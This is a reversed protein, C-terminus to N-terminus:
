AGTSAPASHSNSRAPSSVKEISPSGIMPRHALDGAEVGPQRKVRAAEGVVRGGPLQQGLDAASPWALMSTLAKEGSRKSGSSVVAYRAYRDRLALGHPPPVSTVPHGPSRTLSRTPKTLPPPQFSLSTQGIADQHMQLWNVVSSLHLTCASERIRDKNGRDQRNRPEATRPERPEATRRSRKNETRQEKNQLAARHVGDSNPDDARTKHTAGVGLHEILMRAARLEHGHRHAPARRLECVIVPDRHLWADLRQHRPGVDVGHDQGRRLLDPKILHAGGGGGALM